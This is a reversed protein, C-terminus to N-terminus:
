DSLRRIWKVVQIRIYRKGSKPGVNTHPPFSTTLSFIQGRPLPFQSYPLDFEGRIGGCQGCPPLHPLVKIPAYSAHMCAHMIASLKISLDTM